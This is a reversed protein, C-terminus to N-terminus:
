AIAIFGRVTARQERRMPTDAAGLVAVEDMTRHAAQAGQRVVEAWARMLLLDTRLEPEDRGALEALGRDAQEAVGAPDCLSSRFWATAELHAHARAEPDLRPLALELQRLADDRRV